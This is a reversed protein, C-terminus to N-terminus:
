AKVVWVYKQPQSGKASSLTVEDGKRLLIILEHALKNFVRELSPDMTTEKRKMQHEFLFETIEKAGKSLHEIEQELDVSSMLVCSNDECSTTTPPNTAISKSNNFPEEPSPVTSPVTIDQSEPAAHNQQATAACHCIDERLREWARNHISFESKVVINGDNPTLNSYSDNIGRAM